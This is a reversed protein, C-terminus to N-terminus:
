AMRFGAGMAVLYKVGAFFRRFVTRISAFHLRVAAANIGLNAAPLAFALLCAGRDIRFDSVVMSKSAGNATPLHYNALKVAQLLIAGWSASM